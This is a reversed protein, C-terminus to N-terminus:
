LILHAGVRSVCIMKKLRKFSFFFKVKSSKMQLISQIKYAINLNMPSLYAHKHFLIGNKVYRKLPFPLKIFHFHSPFIQIISMLRGMM